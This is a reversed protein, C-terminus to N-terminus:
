GKDAPMLAALSQALEANRFPKTLRPLDPAIGEGQANGSVILAPLDPSRLRVQRALGAGSIGPVLHDTVLLDPALGSDLLRLAEEASCAEAVEYGLDILMDATSMRVLDEDDVLLARGCTSRPQPASAGTGDAEIPTLSVPLWLEVTMGEGPASEITLGHVM